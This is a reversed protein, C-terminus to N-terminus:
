LCSHFGVSMLRPAASCIPLVSWPTTSDVFVVTCVVLLSLAVTGML